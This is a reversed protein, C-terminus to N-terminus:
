GDEDEDEKLCQSSTIGGTLNHVLSCMGRRKRGAGYHHM